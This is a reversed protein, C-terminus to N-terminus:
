SRGGDKFMNVKRVRIPNRAKSKSITRFIGGQLFRRQKFYLAQQTISYLSCFNKLKTRENCRSFEKAIM